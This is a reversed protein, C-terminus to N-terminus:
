HKKTNFCFLRVHVEVEKHVAPRNGLVIPILKSSIKCLSERPVMPHTTAQMRRANMDVERMAFFKVNGRAVGGVIVEVGGHQGVKQTRCIAEFGIRAEKLKEM